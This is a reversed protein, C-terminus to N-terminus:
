DFRCPTGPKHLVDCCNPPPCPENSSHLWMCCRNKRNEIIRAYREPSDKWDEYANIERLTEKMAEVHPDFYAM